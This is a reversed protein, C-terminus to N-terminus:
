LQSDKSDLIIMEDNMLVDILEYGVLDRKLYYELQPKEKEWASTNGSGIAENQMHRTVLEIKEVDEINPPLSYHLYQM